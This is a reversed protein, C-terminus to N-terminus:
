EETEDKTRSDGTHRALPSANERHKREPEILEATEAVTIYKRGDAAYYGARLEGNSAFSYRLFPVTENDRRRLFGASLNFLVSPAAGNM